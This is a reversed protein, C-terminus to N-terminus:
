PERGAEFEVPYVTVRAHFGFRRGDVRFVHSGCDVTNLYLEGHYIFLGAPAHQFECCGGTKLRLNM